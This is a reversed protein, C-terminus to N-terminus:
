DMVKVKKDPLPFEATSLQKKCSKTITVSGDVYEDVLNEVFAYLNDRLNIIQEDSYDKRGLHERSEEVSLM